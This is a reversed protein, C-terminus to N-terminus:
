YQKEYEGKGIRKLKHFGVNKARQDLSSKSRGISPPSFIKEVPANCKPCVSLLPDSMRPHVWEFPKACYTCSKSQKKAQYEYIPM